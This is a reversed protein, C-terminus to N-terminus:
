VLRLTKAGRHLRLLVDERLEDKGEWQQVAQRSVGCAEGLLRPSLGDQELRWARLQAGTRPFAPPIARLEAREDDTLKVRRPRRETKRREPKGAKPPQQPQEGERVLQELREVRAALKQLKVAEGTDGQIDGRGAMILAFYDGNSIGRDRAGTRFQEVLSVTARLQLVTTPEPM